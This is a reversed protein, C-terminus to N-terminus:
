HCNRSEQGRGGQLCFQTVDTGFKVDRKSGHKAPSYSSSLTTFEACLLGLNFQASAFGQQATKFYWEAAASIDRPVGRGNAYRLGLYYQAQRNGQLAALLYCKVATAPDELVGKGSDYLAGLNIQANADGQDALTQWIQLADDFQGSDYASWARSFAETPNLSTALVGTPMMLALTWTVVLVCGCLWGIYKSM